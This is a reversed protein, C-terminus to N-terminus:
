IPGLEILESSKTLDLIRSDYLRTYLGLVNQLRFQIARHPHTVTNLKDRNLTKININIDKVTHM